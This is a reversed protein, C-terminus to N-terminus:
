RDFKKITEEYFAPTDGRGKKDDVLDRNGRMNSAVVPLRCAMAEMVSDPLWEHMSPFLFIESANCIEKIDKRFGLFLVRSELGYKKVLEQLEELLYDQGCIVDTIKSNPINKLAEIVVKHNKRDSLEGISLLILSGEPINLDRRKKNIENFTLNSFKNLDIVVGPIYISEKANM